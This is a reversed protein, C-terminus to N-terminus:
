FYGVIKVIRNNRTEVNIRRPNYEQTYSLPVGDRVVVRIAIRPYMHYARNIDQGIIQRAILALNPVYPDPRPRPGPHPQPGPHPHPQPGPHPHPRPPDCVIRCRRGNWDFYRSDRDRGGLPDYRGRMINPDNNEETFDQDDDWRGTVGDFDGSASWTGPEYTRFLM